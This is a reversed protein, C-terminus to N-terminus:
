EAPETLYKHVAAACKRGEAIAWVVISQGRRMDGCAFVKNITTAHANEDDGFVAKVNGKQDLDMGMQVLEDILGNREPHLFGAAILVLDAEMEFETGPLEIFKGNEFKVENCILSNVEGNSNGKFVKTSIGWKRLAGEEHSSSTRLILPWYPWPTSDPRSKPPAPMVELQTIHSAKQRNATGVCDSGTDGGGLIIVKKNEANIFDTIKDGAIIKNQTTLYDMAFHIGKLKRGPIQIDRPIESGGALIVANFRAILEKASIDVGVNVNTKFEVGEITMQKLRRDILSKDLKFDPIGYRLLGGVKDNKEFITVSHGARALQQAAALGAPGSGVVAVSKKSLVFSIRPKVWGQKFGFDIITQEISKISVPLDNIGLTCATECPAPCLRGTFEPFNNTTHLNDLAEKWHGNYILDNWEPIYNQVPCGTDGLCFPIGCDMCRAGQIKTDKDSLPHTFEKYNKVRIDPAENDLTKRHYEMFGTNKGM